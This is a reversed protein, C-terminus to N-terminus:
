GGALWRLFRSEARDTLLRSSRRRLTHSARQAAPPFQDGIPRNFASQESQQAVAAFVERAAAKARGQPEGLVRAVKEIYIGRGDSM